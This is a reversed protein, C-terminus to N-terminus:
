MELKPDLPISAISVPRGFRLSQPSPVSLRRGSGWPRFLFLSLLFLRVRSGFLLGGVLGTVLGGYDCTWLFSSRTTEAVRRLPLFFPAMATQFLGVQSRVLLSLLPFDEDGSLRCTM